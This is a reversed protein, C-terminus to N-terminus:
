RRIASAGEGLVREIVYRGVRHSSSTRLSFHRGDQVPSGVFKHTRELTEVDKLDNARVKTLAAVLEETRGAFRSLYDLDNPRDGSRFRVRYEQCVLELPLEALAGLEPYTTVYDELTPREPLINSSFSVTEDPATDRRWRHEIDLMVLSVLSDRSSPGKTVNTRRPLFARIDPPENGSRWAQDFQQVLARIRPDSSTM